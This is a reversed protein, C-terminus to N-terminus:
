SKITVLGSYVATATGHRNSPKRADDEVEEIM